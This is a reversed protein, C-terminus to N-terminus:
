VHMSGIKTNYIDYSESSGESHKSLLLIIVMYYLIAYSKM